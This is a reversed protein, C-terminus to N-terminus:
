YEFYCPPGSKAWSIPNIDEFIFRGVQKSFVIMGHMVKNAKNEPKIYIFM